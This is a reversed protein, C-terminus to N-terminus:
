IATIIAQKLASGAAKSSHFLTLFGCPGPPGGGAAACCFSASGFGSDRDWLSTSFPVDEEHNLSSCTIPPWSHEFAKPRIPPKGKQSPTSLIFLYTNPYCIALFLSTMIATVYSKDCLTTYTGFHCLKSVHSM